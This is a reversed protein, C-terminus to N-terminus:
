GTAGRAPTASAPTARAPAGATAPELAATRTTLRSESVLRGRHIVFRDPSAFAIAEGLSEARVALLEAAAGVRPGAPPLGLVARAGDTVLHIAEDLQLHGATM